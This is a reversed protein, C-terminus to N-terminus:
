ENNNCIAVITSRDIDKKKIKILENISKIKIKDVSLKKNICNHM